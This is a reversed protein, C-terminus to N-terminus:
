TKEAISCLKLIHKPIESAFFDLLRRYEGANSLLIATIAQTKDKKKSQEKAEDDDGTQQGAFFVQKVIKIVRTITTYNPSARTKEILDDLVKKRAEDKSVVTTAPKM